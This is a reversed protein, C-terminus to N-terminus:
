GLLGARAAKLAAVAEELTLGRRSQYVGANAQDIDAIEARPEGRAAADMRGIEYEHWATIHALVDKASWREFTGPELREAESLSAIFGDEETSSRHLLDLLKTKIEM